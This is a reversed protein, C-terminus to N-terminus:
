FIVAQVNGPCKHHKEVNIKFVNYIYIHYFSSKMLVWFLVDEEICFRNSFVGNCDDELGKALNVPPSSFLRYELEQEAGLWVCMYIYIYFTLHYGLKEVAIFKRQKLKDIKNEVTFSLKKNENILQSNDM